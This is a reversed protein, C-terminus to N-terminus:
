VDHGSLAECGTTRHPLSLHGRRRTEFCLWALGVVTALLASTPEPLGAASIAAIGAGASSGFQMQWVLFDDGDVDGDYDADGDAHLGGAAIGFGAQWTLFDHGDVDLDLDFDSGLSEFLGYQM